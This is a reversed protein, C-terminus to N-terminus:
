DARAPPIHDHHALTELAAAYGGQGNQMWESIRAITRSSLKTKEIITTYKKGEQLMKAAKLRSSIEIIERETMVDRLFNQMTQIEGIAALVEALQRPTETNWVISKDTQM